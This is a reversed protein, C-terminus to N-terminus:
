GCRKPMARFAPSVLEVPAGRLTKGDVILLKDQSPGLVQEQWLRLAREGACADVRPLVLLRSNNLVLALRCHRQEETWGIFPDRAKLLVM